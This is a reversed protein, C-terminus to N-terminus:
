HRGHRSTSSPTAINHRRNLIDGHQMIWRRGEEGESKIPPGGKCPSAATVGNPIVVPGSNGQPCRILVSLNKGYLVGGASTFHPNDKSVDIARLDHNCEFVRDGIEAVSEPIVVGTLKKGAFAEVGIATVALGRIERPIQVEGGKGGYGTVAVSDGAVTIRFDGEWDENERRSM